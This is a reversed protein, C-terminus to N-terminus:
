KEKKKKRLLFAGTGLAAIGIFGIISEQGTIPLKGVNDKNNSDEIETNNEEGSNGGNGSNNGIESNEGDGSNNGDGHNNGDSPNNGDEPNNGNGPNNGDEPNNEDGPNNGDGPNEPADLLLDLQDKFNEYNDLRNDIRIEIYGDNSDKFFKFLNIKKEVKIKYVTSNGDVYKDELTTKLKELDKIFKNFEEVTTNKVELVLPDNVDGIGYLPTVIDKDVISVIFSPIEDNNDFNIIDITLSDSKNSGDITSATITVQGESKAIVKADRGLVEIEAINEDSTSWEIDKIDAEKNVTATLISSSGIYLQNIKSDITISTALSINKEVTVKITKTTKAKQSDEVTYTIKYEGPTNVDVIDGTVVIDNTIDNDEPDIAKVGDLPDFYDGVKITRDEAYIVPAKNISTIKPNVVVKSQVKTTKGKSDTASYLVRYTGPISTNVNSEVQLEINKDEDEVTVDDKPDFKDGVKLVHDKVGLIVPAKNAKVTLTITKEGKNGYTDIATYTIKYETDAEPDLDIDKDSTVKIDAVERGKADIAKVGDLPEFREGADITIDKLEEGNQTFTPPTKIDDQVVNVQVTVTDSREGFSDIVTCQLDYIGPKDEVFETIIDKGKKVELKLKDDKDDDSMSIGLNEATLELKEGDTVELYKYELSIKPATNMTIINNKNYEVNTTYYEKNTNSIYKYEYNSTPIVKYKPAEGKALLNTSDPSKVDLEFVEIKNGTKPISNEATILVDITNNEENVTYDVLIENSSSSYDKNSLRTEVESTILDKISNKGDKLSAGELKVSFQLAKPIDEINDLAVKVTDSDVKEVVLEFKDENNAKQVEKFKPTAYVIAVTSTLALTSAIAVKALSKKSKM